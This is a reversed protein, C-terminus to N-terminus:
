GVPAPAGQGQDARPAAAEGSPEDARDATAGDAGGPTEGDARRGKRGEGRAGVRSSGTARERGSHRPAQAGDVPELHVSVGRGHCVECPESFAELLGQGVRKRTM